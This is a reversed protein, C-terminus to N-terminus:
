GGGQESCPVCSPLSAICRIPPALSDFPSGPRRRHNSSVAADPPEEPPRLAALRQRIHQIVRRMVYTRTAGQEPFLDRVGQKLGALCAELSPLLEATVTPDYPLRITHCGIETFLKLYRATAMDPCHVRKYATQVEYGLLTTIIRPSSKRGFLKITRTKIPIVRTRYIEVISGPGEASGELGALIKAHPIRAAKSGEGRGAAKQLAEPQQAQRTDITKDATEDSM